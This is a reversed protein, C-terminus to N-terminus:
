AKMGECKKGLAFVSWPAKKLIKKEIYSLHGDDM